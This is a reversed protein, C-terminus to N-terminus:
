IGFACVLALAMLTAPFMDSVARTGGSTSASGGDTDGTGPAGSNGNDAPVWDEPPCMPGKPTVGEVGTVDFADNACDRAPVAIVECEKFSQAHQGAPCSYPTHRTSWSFCQDTIADCCVQATSGTISAKGAKDKWFLEAHCTVSTGDTNGTCMGTIDECCGTETPDEGVNPETPNSKPRKNRSACTYDACTERDCCENTTTGMMTSYSTKRKYGTGCV